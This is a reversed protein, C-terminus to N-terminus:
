AREAHADLTSKATAGMVEFGYKTDQYERIQVIRGNELDFAWCYYQDYPTGSAVVTGKLQWEAIVHRESAVVAGLIPQPSAYQSGLKALAAALNDAGRMTTGALTPRPLVLVADDALTARVSAADGSLLSDLFALAVRKNAEAAATTDHAMINEQTV